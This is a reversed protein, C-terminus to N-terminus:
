KNKVSKKDFQQTQSNNIVVNAYFISINDSLEKTHTFALENNQFTNYQIKTISGCAYNISTLFIHNM